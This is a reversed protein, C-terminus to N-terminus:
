GFKDLANALGWNRAPLAGVSFWSRCLEETVIMVAMASKGLGGYEPSSYLGFFGMDRMKDLLADPIEAGILHLKQAIPDVEREAFNKTAERLERLKPSLDETSMSLSM